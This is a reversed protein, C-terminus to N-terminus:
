SAAVVGGYLLLTITYYMWTPIIDEAGKAQMKIEKQRDEDSENDLDEDHTEHSVLANMINQDVSNLIVMDTDSVFSYEDCDSGESDSSTDSEISGSRQNNIGAKIITYQQEESERTIVDKLPGIKTMSNSSTQTDRLAQERRAKREARKRRRIERRKKRQLKVYRRYLLGFIALLSEKGIFFIFPTHTSMVLLFVVRLTYSEWEAVEEVNLLVDGKVYIGFSYISIFM